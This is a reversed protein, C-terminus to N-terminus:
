KLESLLLNVIYREGSEDIQLKHTEPYLLELRRITNQLGIKTSESEGKHVPNSVHLSLSDKGSSISVDIVSKSMSLTGHKFANEIFTFIILPAIKLNANEVNKKYVIECRQGLREKEFAVYNDIFKIEDEITVYEKKNSDLIYRMLESLKLVLEQGNSSGTIIHSYINNLANFLFHPNLQGKLLEMELERANITAKYFRDREMIYRVIFYLGLGLLKIATLSLISTWIMGVDKSYPTNFWWYFPIYAVYSVVLLLLYNKAKKRLLFREVLLKNHVLIWVFDVTYSLYIKFRELNMESWPGRDNLMRALFLIFLYLLTNRFWFASWWKKTM